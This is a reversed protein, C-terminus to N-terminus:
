FPNLFNQLYKQNKDKPVYVQTYLKIGDRMPVMHESKSYYDKLAYDKGDSASISLILILALFCFRNRYSYIKKIKM